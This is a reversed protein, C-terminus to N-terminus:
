VAEAAEEMDENKPAKPAKPVISLGFEPLDFGIGRTEAKELRFQVDEKVKDYRDTMTEGAHGLWFKQLGDPCDTGNRLFTNRFRRFPHNGAQHATQCCREAQAVRAWTIAPRNMRSSPNGCLIGQSV